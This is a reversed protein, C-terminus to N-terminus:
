KDWTELKAILENYEDEIATGVIKYDNKFAIFYKRCTEDGSITGVFLKSFLAIKKDDTDVTIPKTAQYTKIIAAIQKENYLSIDRNKTKKISLQEGVFFLKDVQWVTQEMDFNKGIPLDVTQNVFLTDQVKNVECIKTADWFDIITQKGCVFLVFEFYNTNGNETNISGCLMIKKGKPFEFVESENGTEHATKLCECKKMNQSFAFIYNLTALTVFLLKIKM